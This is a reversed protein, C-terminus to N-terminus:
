TSVYSADRTSPPHNLLLPVQHNTHNTLQGNQLQQLLLLVWTHLLALGGMSGLLKLNFQPKHKYFHLNDWCSSQIWIERDLWGFQFDLPWSWIMMDDLTSLKQPLPSHTNPCTWNWNWSWLLTVWGGIWPPLIKGHSTSQLLSLITPPRVFWLTLPWKHSSKDQLIKGAVKTTKM